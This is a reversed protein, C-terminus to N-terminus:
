PGVPVTCSKQFPSNVCNPLRALSSFRGSWIPYFISNKFFKPLVNSITMIISRLQNLIIIRVVVLIKLMILLRKRTIILMKILPILLRILLRLFPKLVVVSVKKKKTAIVLIKRTKRKIKM